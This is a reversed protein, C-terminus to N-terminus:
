QAHGAGGPGPDPPRRDALGRVAQAIVDRSRGWVAQRWAPDAPWFAETMEAAAAARDAPEPDAQLRVANDARLASLAVVAPVTGCELTIATLTVDPGLEEALGRATNGTIPTSSSTGAESLTLAGGYWRRARDVADPDFGGRLIPEAAGRDGLGTHLDVYGVARAGAVHDRVIQRWRQNSWAPRSGGYFLGDPRTWQGFTIATQLWRQGREALLEGIRADARERAPGDWAAPVLAPHVAEYDPNRPPAAHDVFNRNLDVNDENVRIRHLMGYPNLGHVLVVGLEPPLGERLLGTQVASGFFGEIGHTGSVLVLRRDAGAPGHLAVDISLPSGRATRLTPHPYSVLRGGATGAAARFAARAQGYRESFWTV